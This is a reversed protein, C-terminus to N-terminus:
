TIGNRQRKTRRQKYFPNITKITTPFATAKIRPHRSKSSPLPNQNVAPIQLVQPNYIPMPSVANISGFLQLLLGLYYCIFYELSETKANGPANAAQLKNNQMEKENHPDDRYGLM